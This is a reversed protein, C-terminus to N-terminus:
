SPASVAGGIIFDIKPMAEICSVNSVAKPDAFFAAVVSGSCGPSFVGHTAAPFTITRSQAGLRAEISRVVTPEYHPDLAGIMILVPSRTREPRRAPPGPSGWLRCVGFLQGFDWGRTPPRVESLEAQDRCMVAPRAMTNNEPVAALASTVLPKLAAADHQRAAQLARPISGIGAASRMLRRLLFEFELGNLDAQKFGGTAASDLPVVLPNRDLGRFTDYFDERLRPYAAACRADAACSAFINLVPREFEAAATEPRPVLEVPSDLVVSGIGAPHGAMMDLAVITGYSVSWIDWKAIGLARRLEDADRSTVVTGFHEPRIGAADLRARCRAYPENVRWITAFGDGPAAIAERTVLPIDNCAVPDSFGSGRQDFTVTVAGPSFAAVRRGMGGTFGSGGPGGHLLLLPRRGPVPTAPQQVAVALDFTGDSPREYNRPVTLRFCRTLPAPEPAVPFRCKEATLQAARSPASFAPRADLQAVVAVFIALSRLVLLGRARAAPAPAIPELEVRDLSM